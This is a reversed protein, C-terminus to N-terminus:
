VIRDGSSIVYDVSMQVDNVYVKPPEGYEGRLTVSEGNVTVMAALGIRGYYKNMDIGAQILADGITLQKTEFMFTIKENVYVTIYQLPNQTASIAIGIPTVFEPGTPLKQDQELN